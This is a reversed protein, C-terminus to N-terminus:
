VQPERDLTTPSCFAFIIFQGAVLVFRVRLFCSNGRYLRPAFREWGRCDPRYRLPDSIDRSEAAPQSLTEILHACEPAARVRLFERNM